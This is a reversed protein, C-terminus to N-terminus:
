FNKFKSKKVAYRISILEPVRIVEFFSFFLNTKWTKKKKNEVRNQNMAFDTGTAIGRIWKYLRKRMILNTCIIQPWKELWSSLGTVISTASM